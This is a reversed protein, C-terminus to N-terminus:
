GDGATGTEKTRSFGGKATKLALDTPFAVDTTSSNYSLVNRKQTFGFWCELFDGEYGAGTPSADKRPPSAM